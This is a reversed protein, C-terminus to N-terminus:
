TPNQEWEWAGNGVVRGAGQTQQPHGCGGGPAVGVGPHVVRLSFDEDLNTAGGGGVSTPM